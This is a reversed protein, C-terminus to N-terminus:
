NAKLAAIGSRYVKATLEPTIFDMMVAGFIGSSDRKFFGNVRPNMEYAFEPVQPVGLYYIAGSSYTLHFYKGETDESAQLLGDYTASWKKDFNESNDPNWVSYNLKYLDQIRILSGANVVGNPNDPWPTANIGLTGKFRRVLVIKGRVEGLTPIRACPMWGNYFYKAPYKTLYSKVTNEYSRTNGAATYEEKLLM